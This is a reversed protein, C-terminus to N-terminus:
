PINHIITNHVTLERESDDRINVTATDPDPSVLPSQSVLFLSFREVEEVEVDNRDNVFMIRPVACRSRRCRPFEIVSQRQAIYDSGNVPPLHSHVTFQAITVM